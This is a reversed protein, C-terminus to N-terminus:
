IFLLIKKRNKNAQYWVDELFIEKMIFEETNM